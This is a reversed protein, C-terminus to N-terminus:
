CVTILILSIRQKTNLMFSNFSQINKTKCKANFNKIRLIYKINQNIILLLLKGYKQNIDLM